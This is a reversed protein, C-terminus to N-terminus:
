AGLVWSAKAGGDVIPVPLRLRGGLTAALVVHVLAGPSAQAHREVNHRPDVFRAINGDRHPHANHLFMLANERGAIEGVGNLLFCKHTRSM